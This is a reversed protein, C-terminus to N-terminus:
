YINDLNSSMRDFEKFFVENKDTVNLFTKTAVNIFVNQQRITFVDRDLCLREFNELNIGRIKLGEAGKINSYMFSYDNFLNRVENM